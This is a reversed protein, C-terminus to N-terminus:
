TFADPLKISFETFGYLLEQSMEAIESGTLLTRTLFTSAPEVLPGNGDVFMNPDIIGAGYGFEKFYAQQIKDSEAALKKSLDEAQQAYGATDQNLSNVYGRGISDTLKLLNDVRLLSSWDFALSAPNSFAAGVNGVVMMLLASIVSGLIGLNATLKELVTMLVMAALANAISGVIAATIGTFGLSTGVSLATGLLGITTGGTFVASIVAIVVVLIIKFIGTEYWAQKYVEYCNMVIFVCATAMQSTDVLSMSRWTDYHLPVIFGSESPDSLAQASTIRVSNTKYVFNQFVAGVVELYTYSNAERQWYIRFKGTDRAESSTGGTQTMFITTAVNDNGMHDLWLDGKKADPKGLGVGTGDDIFLWSLRTDYRAAIEGNGKIRINNNSLSEFVPRPPEPEFIEDSVHGGIGTTAEKWAIWADVVAQQSEIATKWTNYADPGGSQALQLNEFFRYLYKKCADEVVNLSVGFTVYIHDIDDIDDNEKLQEVLKDIKKGTAKKYAKEIQAWAEERSEEEDLFDNRLRIPLFPFFEGYDTSEEVLADLVLNGSGIQYIFIKTPSYSRYIIEQTDIRYSNVGGTEFQHMTENLYTLDELDALVTRREYIRHVPPGADTSELDWDTTDPFPDGPALVITSGTILPGTVDETVLSYHTYVYKSESNYGVPTFEVTSLDEFMITIENLAEDYDTVWNTGIEDYRNELVWQEAWMAIDAYNVQAVQAWVTEEPDHDIFPAVDEPNLAGNVQLEGSPLGVQDYNDPNSAWRYFSRLKIAPGRLYGSTLSEGMGVKTGSLVNQIVLTKLYDPRDAEEGALNYVVSDVTIIEGM